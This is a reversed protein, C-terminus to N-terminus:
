GLFKLVITLIISAVDITFSGMGFAAYGNERALKFCIVALPFILSIVLMAAFVKVFTPIV